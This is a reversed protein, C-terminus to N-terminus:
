MSTELLGVSTWVLTLMAITINSSSSTTSSSTGSSSRRSPSAATKTTTLIQFGLVNFTSNSNACCRGNYDNPGSHAPERKERRKNRQQFEEEKQRIWLELFRHHANMDFAACKGM